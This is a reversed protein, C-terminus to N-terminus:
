DDAEGRLLDSTNKCLLVMFFTDSPFVLSTGATSIKEVGGALVVDDFLVGFFVM